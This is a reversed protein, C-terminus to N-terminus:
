VLFTPTGGCQSLSRFLLPEPMHTNEWSNKLEAGDCFRDALGFDVKKFAERLITGAHQLVNQNKMHKAIDSVTIDSSFGIDSENM